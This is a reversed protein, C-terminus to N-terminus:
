SFPAILRCLVSGLGVFAFPGDCGSHSKADVVRSLSELAGSMTVFNM